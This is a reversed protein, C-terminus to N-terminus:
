APVRQPYAERAYQQMMRHTNFFPPVNAIAQKMMWMWRGRDQTYLPLIATELKHYLSGAHDETTFGELGWGNVGEICGELWWGDLSSMNLVGNLSAKMGSTGSAELPPLPTNLWVDAGSVFTRGLRMDYGPVFVVSLRGELRRAEEHIRAIIDKGQTDHPHSKGAVVLQFPHREAIAALRDVDGFLMDARKYATVRRAFALTPLDPSLSRGTEECVLDLLAQKAKAHAEWVAGDDLDGAKALVEPHDRWEPLAEDFLRAFAPHAWTPLHVGNTVAHIARGPFMERSVEAHKVSVANAYRSLNLALETTNLEHAGALRKIDDLPIPEGMVHQVLGYDFRDHGAPVPTHTTFVCRERVSAEDYHPRSGPETGAHATRRLLELTLLAAHGENMHYCRIDFGLARLMRVGGIGLVIEQKLRYAKDGGYLVDTIGRDQPDNRELDTDLVLVPVSQRGTGQVYLWAKVWVERGEVEVPVQPDLPTCWDSLTWHDAHEVQRGQAIEQRFYGARSALTLFVMPLSLDAASRVSDGALVGLGGSYTHIESRLAIEMSFYAASTTPLFLDINTSM